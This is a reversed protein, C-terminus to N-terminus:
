SFFFALALACEAFAVAHLKGRGVFLVPNGIAFQAGDLTDVFAAVDSDLKVGAALDAEVHLLIPM